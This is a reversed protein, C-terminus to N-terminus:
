NNYNEINGVLNEYQAKAILFNFIAQLRNLKAQRLALESDNLELLSGIGEKYRINSIDYGRQAQNVNKESADIQSLANKMRLIVDQTQNEFSYEIMERQTEAKAKDIKAKEVKANTQFGSFLNVSLRIGLDSQNITQFEWDDSLNTSVFNAYMSLRPIYESRYLEIFADQVQVQHSLAKLDYNNEKVDNFAMELKPVEKNNIFDEFTGKISIIENNDLGIILKLNNLSNIFNNKSNTVEPRLNEVQVSARIKDYESVLGEGFLIEIEKFRAETNEFSKQMLEHAEKALLTQYYAQRTNMITKSYQSNLIEESAKEYIKSSGIGTLVTYDFLTQNLEVSTRFTNFFNLYQTEGGVLNPPTVGTALSVEGLYRGLDAPFFGFGDDGTNFVLEQKQLARVYSSNLDLRPLAYGYAEQVDQRAKELDYQAMHLNHNNELSTLIAEELTIEKQAFLSSSIFLLLLWKSM